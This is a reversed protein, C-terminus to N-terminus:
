SFRRIVRRFKVFIGIGYRMATGAFRIFSGKVGVFNSSQLAYQLNLVAQKTSNIGVSSYNEEKSAHFVENLAPAQFFSPLTPESVKRLALHISCFLFGDHFLVLNPYADRVYDIREKSKVETLFELLNRRTGLTENDLEVTEPFDIFELGTGDLLSGSIEEWTFLYTDPGWSNRDRPGRIRFETSISAPAGPKLVRSLERLALNAADFGGFHEISGCSFAGDFFNSPLLLNTADSHIPLINNSSSFHSYSQPEKLFGKPAVDSWVTDENYLDTAVVLNVFNSFKFLTDEIGAGICILKSDSNMAGHESLTLFAMSNEWQKSDCVPSLDSALNRNFDGFLEEISEKLPSESFSRSSILRTLKFTM